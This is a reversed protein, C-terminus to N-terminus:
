GDFQFVSRSSSALQVQRQCGFAAGAYTPNASTADLWPDSFLSSFLGGAGRRHQMLNQSAPGAHRYPSKWSQYLPLAVRAAAEALATILVCCFLAYGFVAFFRQFPVLGPREVANPRM